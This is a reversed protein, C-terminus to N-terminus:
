LNAGSRRRQTDFFLDRIVIGTVDQITADRAPIPAGTVPSNYADRQPQAVGMTMLQANEAAQLAVVFAHCADACAQTAMTGAAQAVVAFGPIYVRGRFARGSKATRLTIVFALQSALAIGTDTGPVATVTSEVLPLNAERLDRLEVRTLTTTAPCQSGLGGVANWATVLANMLPNAVGTTAQFAPQVRAHTNNRALKGNPLTYVVSV